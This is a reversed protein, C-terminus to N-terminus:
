GRVPRRCVLGPRPREPEPLPFRIVGNTNFRMAFSGTEKILRLDPSKTQPMRLAGASRVRSAGRANDGCRRRSRLFGPLKNTEFNELYVEHLVFGTAEDYFDVSFFSYSEATM